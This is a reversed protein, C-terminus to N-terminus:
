PSKDRPFTPISRIYPSRLLGMLKGWGSGRSSAGTRGLARQRTSVFPGKAAWFVGKDPLFWGSSRLKDTNKQPGGEPARPNKIKRTKRRCFFPAQGGCFFRVRNQVANRGATRVAASLPGFRRSFIKWIEARGSAISRFLQRHPQPRLRGCPRSAWLGPQGLAV